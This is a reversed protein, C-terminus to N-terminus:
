ARYPFKRALKRTIGAIVSNAPRTWDTEREVVVKWLVGGDDGDVQRYGVGLFGVPKGEIQYCRRKGQGPFANGRRQSGIIM